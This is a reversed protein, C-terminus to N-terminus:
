PLSCTAGSGFSFSAGFGGGHKTGYQRILKAMAPSVVAIAAAAERAGVPQGDIRFHRLIGGGQGDPIDFWYSGDWRLVPRLGRDIRVRWHDQQWYRCTAAVAFRDPEALLFRIAGGNDATIDRKSYDVCLPDRRTTLPDPAKGDGYHVVHCHFPPDHYPAVGSGDAAPAARAVTLPLAFVAILAVIPLRRV